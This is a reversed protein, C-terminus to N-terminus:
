LEIIKKGLKRAYNVTYFTGGSRRRLFCVLVDCNEVMYRDRGHMCGKFYAPALTIVEDCCDLIISHKLKNNESFNDTQDACPLCATLKIDYDKKYMLVTQAAALDFGYAMGCLFETTGTKILNLVVRDLLANDFDLAKLNRHGSFACIKNNTTIM